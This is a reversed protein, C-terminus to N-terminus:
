NLTSGFLVRGMNENGHAFGGGGLGFTKAKGWRWKLLQM